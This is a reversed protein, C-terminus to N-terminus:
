RWGHTAKRFILWQKRLGGLNATHGLASAPDAEIRALYAPTLALPLYAPRVSELLAGAQKHFAALHDRALAAMASVARAAGAGEGGILEETSTGAAALLDQPVYCQGRSRHLPLLRLLGTIALACGAHGSLEACRPAAVPDLVLAALQVIASATEGCYGELDTRSPMPDDYLDFIRAELFNDFAAVPLRHASMASVLAEAVPHGAAAEQTGAAIVDCWWQLRIEGPMPERIRDRIGAIEANFAYLALLADRKDQPAYLATLYRDRDADRVLEM